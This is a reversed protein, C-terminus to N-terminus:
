KIEDRSLEVKFTNFGAGVCSVNSEIDELVEWFHSLLLTLDMVLWLRFTFSCSFLLSKELIAPKLCATENHTLRFLDDVYFLM